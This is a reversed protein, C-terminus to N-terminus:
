RTKVVGCITCRWGGGGTKAGKTENHLRKGRGHLKDQIPHTCTCPLVRAPM